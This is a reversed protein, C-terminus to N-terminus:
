RRALTATDHVFRNTNFRSITALNWDVNNEEKIKLLEDRVM